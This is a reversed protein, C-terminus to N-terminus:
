AARKMEVGAARYVAARFALWDGGYQDQTIGLEQGKATIGSATEHWLKGNKNAGLQIELVDDWREANLWSAPYPIFMGGDRLWDEPQEHQELIELRAQLPPRIRSTKEWARRAVGKSVKRPYAAWFAEFEELM